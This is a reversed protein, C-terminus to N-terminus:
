GLFMAAGGFMHGEVDEFDGDALYYTKRGTVLDAHYREVQVDVQVDMLAKVVEPFTIREEDSAKTMERVADTVRADM